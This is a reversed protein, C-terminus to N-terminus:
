YNLGPNNNLLLLFFFVTTFKLFVYRHPNLHLRTELGVAAAAAAATTATVAATEAM